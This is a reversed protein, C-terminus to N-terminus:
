KGRRKKGAKEQSYDYMGYCQGSAQEQSKGGEKIVAPICRNVWKQRPEGKKIKPM